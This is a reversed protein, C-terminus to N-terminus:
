PSAYEKLLLKWNIFFNHWTESILNATVGVIIGRTANWRFTSNLYKKFSQFKGIPHNLGVELMTSITTFAIGVNLTM